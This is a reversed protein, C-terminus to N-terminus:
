YHTHNTVRHRITGPDPKPVARSEAHRAGWVRLWGGGLTIVEDAGSGNFDFMHYVTEPFHLKGKGDPMMRFRGWFLVDRGDGLWDGKVFDPNGSIPNAPWKSLYEGDKNFWHVEATLRGQRASRSGYYRANVAIQPGAPGDLLDGWEIQQSHEAVHHWLIRGTLAEFIVVGLDSMAALAEPIGDGNIDAFRYSDVHDHNDDFLDFRDWIVKGQSDLVFPSLVVEDIGDGDLDVPYPYHGLHDKLRKENYQWLLELEPSYASVSKTNGPDTFVIINDPYGPHLRGIAIRFNNYVHPLEPCPWHVRKKVEGTRGDAVVLWEEGEMFRWHIVEALGDRDLDWLAGPGEFEARLRTGEEPSGYEWLLEGDYNYMYASWGPDLVLFDTKGDGELDGFKVVNARGVRYEKVMEVEGQYQYDSLDEESFGEDMALVVVDLAPSRHVRTIWVTEEGRALDMTGAQKWTMMSDCPVSPSIQEGVAVRLSSGSPGTTRVFVNYKGTEPINVRTQLNVSGQMTPREALEVASNNFLWTGGFRGNDMFVHERALHDILDSADV